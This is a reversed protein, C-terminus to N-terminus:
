MGKEEFVNGDKDICLVTKADKSKAYEKSERISRDMVELEVAFGKDRLETATEIGKAVQARDYILFYDLVARVNEDKKFYDQRELALILREIGMAFGIAPIDHGYRRCLGDYRGGTCIPFGLDKVYGEMVIGTYYNFDKCLSLDITINDSFGFMSVYDLTAELENLSNSAKKGLSIRRAQNLVDRGGRLKKLDLIERAAEKSLLENLMKELGVYDKVAIMNKIKFVVDNDVNSNYLIDEIVGTLYDIRGVDIMFGSLGSKKAGEVAVALIEADALPSKPGVLEIGAQCFQRDKGTQLDEYRFVDSIYYLKLPKLENKLRTAVARAIPTTMDPRLVLLEGEHDFFKYMIAEIEPGLGTSVMDYFEFTPTLIEDYGWSDFVSRIREEVEYKIRASPPLFDRTGRPIQGFRKTM